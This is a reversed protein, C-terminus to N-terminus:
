QASCKSAIEAASPCTLSNITGETVKDEIDKLRSNNVILKGNKITVKFDYNESNPNCVLVYGEYSGKSQGMLEDLTYCTINTKGTTLMDSQYKASVTNIVKKAYVKFSDKRAGGLSNSVMPIAIVIIVALIVIVALLEILTFGEKRKM